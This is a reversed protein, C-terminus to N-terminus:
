VKVQFAFNVLEILRIFQKWISQDGEYPLQLSSVDKDSNGPSTRPGHVTCDYVEDSFVGLGSVFRIRKRPSSPESETDTNKFSSKLPRVKIREPGRNIWNIFNRISEPVLSDRLSRTLVPKGHPM